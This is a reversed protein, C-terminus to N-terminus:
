NQNTRPIIEAAVPVDDIGTRSNLDVKPWHKKRAEKLM